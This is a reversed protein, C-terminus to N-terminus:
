AAYRVATETGVSAQVSLVDSCKMTKALWLDTEMVSKALGFIHQEFAHLQGKTLCHKLRVNVSYQNENLQVGEIIELPNDMGHDRWPHVQEMISVYNAMMAGLRCKELKTRENTSSYLELRRNYTAIANNTVTIVFRADVSYNRNQPSVGHMLESLTRM